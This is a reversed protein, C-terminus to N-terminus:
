PLGKIAFFMITKDLGFCFLCTNGAKLQEWIQSNEITRLYPQKFDTTKNGGAKSAGALLFVAFWIKM